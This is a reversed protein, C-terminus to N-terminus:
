ARYWDKTCYVTDENEITSLCLNELLLSILSMTGPLQSDSSGKMQREICTKVASDLALDLFLLDKSRGHPKHLIPHLAVRAEILKEVLFVSRDENHIQIFNLLEQLKPSLDPVAQLKPSLGPVAQLKPSLGPVAQIHVESMFGHGKSTYGLCATIASELDAGSHVAKLTRLYSTLDRILGEKIDRGFQPESIIPRDYSALTRKTLSNSNLTKWYDELKFDSRVYDLLAQCVIVDDPSSNTHLKQHWEEMMGGKCDNNRQILLIEDRIRQGGDGQGGRGVCSRILRIYERNSPQESYIKALLDALKDQAASIERPQVNYNKYWKLQRCAMFRFWVLIAVLGLEGEYRCRGLLESAINYRHMFSREADKEKESIENVMWTLTQMQNGKSREQLNIDVFKFFGGGTSLEKFYTQCAGDVLKSREPLIESPPVLWEGPSQRSVGWHLIQAGSMSTAVLLHYHGRVIKLLVVLENNGVHFIQNQIVDTGGISKDVLNLFTSRYSPTKGSHKNLWQSVDYRKYYLSSISSSAFAANPKEEKDGTKRDNRGLLSRIEDLSIGRALQLQFERVAAEYDDKQQQPSSRPRGKSEWTLYAKLDVLDKPLQSVCRFDKHIDIRFNGNNLKFRFIHPPM